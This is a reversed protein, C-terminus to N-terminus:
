PTTWAVAQVAEVTTAANIQERLTVGRDFAGKVLAGLAEGVALVNAGALTRTSNDALTWDVSYDQAAAAAMMALQVAGMIRQQSMADSDFTSGDWTFGGFQAADRADKVLAWQRLKAADLTLAGDTVVTGGDFPAILTLAPDVDALASPGADVPWMWVLGNGAIYAEESAWSAVNIAVRQTSLDVSAQMAKHFGVAAGNPATISKLIPM